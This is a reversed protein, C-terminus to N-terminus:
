ARTWSKPYGMMWEVFEPNLVGRRLHNPTNKEFRVQTPLDRCTRTTIVNSTHSSHRPTSWGRFVTPGKLEECTMVGKVQAKYLKPDFVLRLNPRAYKVGVYRTNEDGWMGNADPAGKKDHFHWLLTEFALRVCDPVVSNGLMSTRAGLDNKQTINKPIVMRPTEANEGRAWVEKFPKYPHRAKIKAVWSELGKKILLCFWRKRYHPAGVASAPIVAWRMTYGRKKCFEQKLVDIGNHLIMPVNELFLMKPQLEDTLRFVEKILGSRDGSLGKQNGIVSLDQCPWGGVIIDPIPRKGTALDKKSLKCVDSFIPAKHLMGDAMHKKLVAQCGADIECYGVPKALGKLALTFGGIGSFLDLSNLLPM